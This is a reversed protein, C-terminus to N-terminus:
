IRRVKTRGGLEHYQQAALDQEELQEEAVFVIARDVEVHIVLVKKSGRAGKTGAFHRSIIDRGTNNAAELLRAGTESRLTLHELCLITGPYKRTWIPGLATLLEAKLEAHSIHIDM